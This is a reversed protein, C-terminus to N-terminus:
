GSKAFNNIHDLQIMTDSNRVVVHVYTMLRVGLNMMPLNQFIPIDVFQAFTLM